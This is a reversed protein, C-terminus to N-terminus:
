VKNNESRLVAFEKKLFILEKHLEDNETQLDQNKINVKDLVTKFTNM